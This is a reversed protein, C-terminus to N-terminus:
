SPQCWQEIRLREYIQSPLWRHIKMRKEIAALTTELHNSSSKIEEDGGRDEPSSALSPNSQFILRLFSSFALLYLNHRLLMMVWDEQLAQYLWSLTSQYNGNRNSKVALYVYFNSYSWQYLKAPIEPHKQQVDAMILAQSKAMATYNCSMSSLIQRYGVLFEPVVKFQYYEAIRLHLDWDECGQANQAKLNSNYGGVKDFCSRRIVSCSANGVFYKYVLTRYVEGEITSNYFGGMLSGREDIDLSWSYVLGFSSDSESLCDVQKTLYHPYWIDDADVPAIYEGRAQQLALNRAAAVGANSQQLSVIRRDRQAFSQIIEATQDQSGDDVVLVEFNQYTQSLISELTKELFADANYAPVIISVLPEILAPAPRVM